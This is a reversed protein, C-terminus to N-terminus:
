PLSQNSFRYWWFSIITFTKTIENTEFIGCIDLSGKRTVGDTSGKEPLREHGPIDTVVMILLLYHAPRM